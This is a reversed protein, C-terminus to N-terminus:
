SQFHLGTRSGLRMLAFHFLCEKRQGVCGATPPLRSFPAFEGTEMSVFRILFALFICLLSRSPPIHNRQLSPLPCWGPPRVGLLPYSCINSIMKNMLCQHSQISSSVSPKILPLANQYKKCSEGDM